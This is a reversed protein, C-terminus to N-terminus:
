GWVGFVARVRVCARVCVLVNLIIAADHLTHCAAHSTDWAGLM